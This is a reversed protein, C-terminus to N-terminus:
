PALQALLARVAAVEDANVTHPMGPYVRLDVQAGLATFAAATEEMRVLPIHPDVDSGGVFVPVGDLRAPYAFRKDMPPAGETDAEGILGGSLGFVAGWPGGARAAAELALCAGQSFGGLAIRRRPLGAATAVGVAREVAALAGSLWPENAELPALFSHPYWSPQGKGIADAQPALVAMGSPMLEPALTLISEATAGRGHVLVLASTADTLAAGALRVPAAAHPPVTM